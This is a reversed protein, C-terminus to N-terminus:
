ELKLLDGKVADEIFQDLKKQTQAPDTGSMESYYKLKPETGSMRLTLVVGNSFTFTIMQGSGVPMTPKNDPTTSDYGPALLDRVGTVTYKNRGVEQRYKGGNRIKDFIKANVAPDPSM